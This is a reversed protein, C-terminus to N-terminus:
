DLDLSLDVHCARAGPKWVRSLGQLQMSNLPDHEGLVAM